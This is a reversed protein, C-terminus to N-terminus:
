AASRRCSWITLPCLRILDAIASAQFRAISSVQNKEHVADWSYGLRDLVGPRFNEILVDAELLLRDFIARDAAAKLDLAISKKGRNVSAFYVSEGNKMPPFARTDDGMGPQEVKIIEAGLEWLWLTAYPGALVRTLDLVRVGHLPGRAPTSPSM